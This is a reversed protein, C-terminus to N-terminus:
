WYLACHPHWRVSVTLPQVMKDRPVPYLRVSAVKKSQISFDIHQQAFIVGGSFHCHDNMIDSSYCLHDLLGLTKSLSCTEWIRLNTSLLQLLPPMPPPSFLIPFVKKESKNATCLKLNLDIVQCGSYSYSYSYSYNITWIYLFVNSVERKLM